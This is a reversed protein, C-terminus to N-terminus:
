GQLKAKGLSETRGGLRGPEVEQRGGKGLENELNM